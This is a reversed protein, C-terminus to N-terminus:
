KRRFQTSGDRKLQEPACGFERIAQFVEAEQRQCGADILAMEDGAEILRVAM